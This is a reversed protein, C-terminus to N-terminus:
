LLGAPKERTQQIEAKVPENTTESTISPKTQHSYFLTESSDVKTLFLSLLNVAEPLRDTVV